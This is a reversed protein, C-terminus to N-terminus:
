KEHSELSQHVHARRHEVAAEGRIQGEGEEAEGVRVEEPAEELHEKEDDDEAEEVAEHQQGGHQADTPGGGDCRRPRPLPCDGGYFKLILLGRDSPGWTSPFISCSRRRRSKHSNLFHAPHKMQEHVQTPNVQIQNNWWRAWGSSGFKGDPEAWVTSLVWALFHMLLHFAMSLKFLQELDQKIM